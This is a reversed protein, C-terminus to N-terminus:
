ANIFHLLILKTSELRDYEFDKAKQLETPQKDSVKIAKKYSELKKPLSVLSAISVSELHRITTSYVRDLEDMKAALEFVVVKFQETEIQNQSAYAQLCKKM